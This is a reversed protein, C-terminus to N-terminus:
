PPEHLSSRQDLLSSLWQEDILMRQHAVKWLVRIEEAEHGVTFAQQQVALAILAKLHEARPYVSGAEWKRVTLGSVGLLNALRDQTLSTATRLKRIAEGYTHDRERYSTKM